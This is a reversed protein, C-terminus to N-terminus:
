SNNYMLYNGVTQNVQLPRVSVWEEREADREQSVPLHVSTFAHKSCVPAVRQDSFVIGLRGADRVETKLVSSQFETVLKLTM